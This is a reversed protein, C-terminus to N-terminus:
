FTESDHSILIQFKPVFQAFTAPKEESALHFLAKGGSALFNSIGRGGPFIEAGALEGGGLFHKGRRM